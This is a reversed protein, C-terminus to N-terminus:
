IEPGMTLMKSGLKVFKFLLSTHKDGGHNELRAKATFGKVTTIKSSYHVNMEPSM